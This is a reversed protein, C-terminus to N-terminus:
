DQELVFLTVPVPPFGSAPIKEQFPATAQDPTRGQM